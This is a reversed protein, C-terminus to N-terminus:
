LIHNPPLCNATLDQIDLCSDLYYASHINPELELLFSSSLLSERSESPSVYIRRTLLAMDIVMINAVCNGSIQGPVPPYRICLNKYILHPVHM